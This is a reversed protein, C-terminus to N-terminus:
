KVANIIYPSFEFIYQGGHNQKCVADFVKTQAKFLKDITAHSLINKYVFRYRELFSEFVKLSPLIVQIMRTTIHFSTFPIRSLEEEIESTTNLDFPFKTDNLEPIEGSKYVYDYTGALPGNKSPLLLLMQGGLKLAEYIRQYINIPDSLFVFCMFSCVLDFQNQEDIDRANRKEVTLNPIKEARLKDILPQYTGLLTIHGDPVKTALYRAIDGNNMGIKLVQADQRICLKDITNTIFDIALPSVIEGSEHKYIELWREKM